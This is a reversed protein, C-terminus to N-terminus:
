RDGVVARPEVVLPLKVPHQLGLALLRAARSRSEGQDEDVQVMELLDVVPVPVQDAALKQRLEALSHTSLQAANIRDEAVSAVFEDHEQRSHAAFFGLAHRPVQVAFQPPLSKRHFISQRQLNAGAVAYGCPRRIRAIDVLQDPERIGRHVTHLTGRAVAHRSRAVPERVASDASARVAWPAAFIRAV